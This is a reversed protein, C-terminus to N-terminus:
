ILMGIKPPNKEENNKEKNNELDAYGNDKLIFDNIRILCALSGAIFGTWLNELTPLGGTATVSSFFSIGGIILANLLARQGKTLKDVDLVSDNKNNMNLLKKIKIQQM